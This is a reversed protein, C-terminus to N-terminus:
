SLLVHIYSLYISFYSSHLHTEEESIKNYFKEGTKGLFIACQAFKSHIFTDILLAKVRFVKRYPM